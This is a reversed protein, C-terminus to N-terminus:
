IGMQSDNQRSDNGSKGDKIMVFNKADMGVGRMSAALSSPAPSKEINIFTPIGTPRGPIMEISTSPNRSYQFAMSCGM